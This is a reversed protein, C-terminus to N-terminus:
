AYAAFSQMECVIGVSANFRIAYDIVYFLIVLYNVMTHKSSILRRRSSLQSTWREPGPRPCWRACNWFLSM